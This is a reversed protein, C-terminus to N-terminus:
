SISDIVSQIKKFDMKECIANAGANFILNNGRSHSSTAIIKISPYLQKIKITVEDGKCDDLDYDILALDFLDNSELEELASRMSSVVKVQHNELFAQTVTKAFISHNEIFLIKM